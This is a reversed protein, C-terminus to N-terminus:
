FNNKYSDDYNFNDYNDIKKINELLGQNTSLKSNSPIHRKKPIKIDKKEEKEKTLNLDKQPIEPTSIEEEKKEPQPTKLPEAVLDKFSDNVVSELISTSKDSVASLQDDKVETTTEKEENIINLIAKKLSDDDKDFDNNLDVIRLVEQLSTEGNVVKTLGDEILSTNKEYILKRLNLRDKKNTIANRVTDNIEIVESLPIRGQYGNICKPCGKPIYIKKVNKNLIKTFIEKEYETTEKSERCEPCIKKVLRQSIIGTLSSSLLYSEIDMNILTDITTYINKSNITSIVLRGTASAKLASYALNIDSIESIGIVNPDLLLVKELISVTSLGKDEAVQVQNIGELKLKIPKEITIINKSKHDLEKLMSYLTTTKGSATAGAILITGSTNNLLNKIKTLNYENFGLNDLNELTNNHNSIHIVIKEGDIIPLTSVRMNYTYNDLKYNMTGSQPITSETINLGALIKIRTTINRKINEPATTYEVLDGDIRFRILLEEKQPDLHIDTAKLLIADSIIQKVINVVPEKEYDFEHLAM